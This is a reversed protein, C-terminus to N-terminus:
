RAADPRFPIAPGTVPPQSGVARRAILEAETVALLDALSYGDRPKAAVAVEAAINNHRLASRLRIALSDASTGPCDALLMALGNSTIGIADCGAQMRALLAVAQPDATAVRMIAAAPCAAVVERAVILWAERRMPRGNPDEGQHRLGSRLARGQLYLAAPLSLWLLPMRQDHLLVEGLALGVTAIELDYIKPRALLRVAAYQRSALMALAMLVVAVGIYAFAALGLAAPRPLALESVQHAALAGIITGATSYVYRYTTGLGAIKRAPWDAIAAIIIVASALQTPLLVAAAFDWTALLNLSLGSEAGSTLVHRVGEWSVCVRSYTISLSTLLIATGIEARTITGIFATSALLACADVILIFIIARFPVRWLSWGWVSRLVVAEEASFRTM